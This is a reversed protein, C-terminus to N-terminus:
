NLDFIESGAGEEFFRSFEDILEDISTEKNGTEAHLIELECNSIKIAGVRMEGILFLWICM